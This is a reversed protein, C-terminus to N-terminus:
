FSKSIFMPETTVDPHRSCLQGLANAVNTGFNIVKPSPEMQEFLLSHVIYNGKGSSGAALDFFDTDKMTQSEDLSEPEDKSTSFSQLCVASRGMPIVITVTKPSPQAAAIAALASQSAMPISLGNKLGLATAIGIRIGTFSGPGASVAILDIETKPVGATKIMADINILLEEGKSINQTGLWNGIEQGDRILSLSGGAIASEIALVTSIPRPSV